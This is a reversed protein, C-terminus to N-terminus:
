DWPKCDPCVLRDEERWWRDTPDGCRECAITDPTWGYTPRLRESGTPADDVRTTLFLM